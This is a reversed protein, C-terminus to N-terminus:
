TPASRGTSPAFPNRLKLRKDIVLGDHMDETYLVTCGALLASAAIMADYFSLRLERAIRMGTAHTEVTLPEVPCHARVADLLEQTDTWDLRLKRRAVSVVENLVQVSIVPQIALLSEARDAKRADDSLLYLVVNSDIFPKGAPM